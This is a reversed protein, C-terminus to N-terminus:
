ELLQAAVFEESVVQEPEVLPAGKIRALVGISALQSLAALLFPAALSSAAAAWAGITPGAANTIGGVTTMVGFMSSRTARTSYQALITEAVIFITEYFVRALVFFIIGIEWGPALGWSALTLALGLAALMWVRKGGWLDSKGGIWVGVLAAAAGVANVWQIQQENLRWVDNALLASFPGEFTLGLTLTFLGNALIIWWVARPASQRWGRLDLSARQHIHHTESLFFIRALTAPILGVADLLILGAIGLPALLFSGALPGIIAAALVFIEMFSFAAARRAEDSESVMAQMSPWQIAGMVNSLTLTVALVVWDTTFGAVFYLPIIFLGPLIIVWKRGFRDALVGGLLAPLARALAYVSFVGGIQLENAGLNRLHLALLPAWSFYTTLVLGITMSLAITNRSLQRYTALM